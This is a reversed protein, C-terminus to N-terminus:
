ARSRAAALSTVGPNGKMHADLLAEEISWLSRTARTWTKCNWIDRCLSLMADFSILVHGGLLSTETSTGLRLTKM